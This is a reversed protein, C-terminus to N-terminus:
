VKLLLHVSEEDPRVEITIGLIPLDLRALVEDAEIEEIPPGSWEGKRGFLKPLEEPRVDRQDSAVLTCHSSSEVHASLEDYFQAMEIAAASVPNEKLLGPAQICLEWTNESLEVRAVPLPRNCRYVSRRWFPKKVVVSVAFYPCEDALPEVVEATFKAWAGQMEPSDSALLKERQQRVVVEVSSARRSRRSLSFELEPYSVGSKTSIPGRRGRGAEGFANMRLEVRRNDRSVSAPYGCVLSDSPSIAVSEQAGLRCVLGNGGSRQRLENRAVVEMAPRPTAIRARM